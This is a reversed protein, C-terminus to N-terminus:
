LSSSGWAKFSVDLNAVYQLLDFDAFPVRGELGCASITRDARLLDFAFLERLMKM